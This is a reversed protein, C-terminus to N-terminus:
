EGHRVAHVARDITEQDVGKERAMQRARAAEDRWEADELQALLDDLLLRDEEPLQRIREFIEYVAAQSM